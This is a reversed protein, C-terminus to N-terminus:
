KYEHYKDTEVNDLVALADDTLVALSCYLSVLYSAIAKHNIGMFRVSLGPSQQGPLNPQYLGIVGQRRDGTRLLLISTKNNDVGIKDTPVLPV